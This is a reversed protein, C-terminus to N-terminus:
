IRRLYSKISAVRRPDLNLARSQEDTIGRIAEASTLGANELKEITAKGVGKTGSKKIRVLLPGLPSCYKLRGLVQYCEARM